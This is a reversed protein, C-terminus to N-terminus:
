WHSGPLNSLVNTRYQKSKHKPFSLQQWKISWRNYNGTKFTMWEVTQAPYKKGESKVLRDSYTKILGEYYKWYWDLTWKTTYTNQKPTSYWWESPTWWNLYKQAEPIFKKAMPENEEWLSSGYNYPKSYSKWSWKQKESSLNLWQKNIDDLVWRVYQNYREIDDWYLANLMWNKQIRDYFDMNAALVWMKASAERGRSMWSNEISNMIYDIANIRAPESKFYKSLMTLSNKIYRANVNWDKAQQYMIMDMYWLTSLYWTLDDDKYLDKFVPYANSVYETIAKYWSTKDALFMYPYYEELVQRQIVAMQEETVDKTSPYDKKTVLKLLEYERQNALYSLVIKSSGPRSAQAAAMIKMLGAKKRDDTSNLFKTLDEDTWWLWRMLEDTFVTEKLQELEGPYWVSFDTWSKRWKNPYDFATLEKYLRDVADNTYVWEDRWIDKVDDPNMIDYNNLIHVIWNTDMIHQLEKRKAQTFTFWQWTIANQLVNGLVPIYPLLRNKWWDGNEWNLIWDVTQLSYLRQSIQGSNSTKESNLLLKGLMDKDDTMFDLWYKNTWEVLQFRWLWNAINSFESDLVDYAFDINGTKGFAVVSDMMANLVKGERFFKSLIESITNLGAVTLWQWVKFDEHNTKVYEAYDEVWTLPATLIWYFFTAPISSLYDSTDIMYDSYTKANFEWWNSLRDMYYGLKASLLVNMILWKLEQNDYQLYDTFDNWKFKGNRKGVWNVADKISSFIEDTRNIVYWQLANFMYLRSFKHRSFLATASNTFFRSYWKETDALIKNILEDPVQKAEFARVFSDLDPYRWVLNKELSKALEMSKVSWQACLDFLSHTGWKMAVTVAEKLKWEPLPKIMLDLVKDFWTWGLDSNSNFMIENVRNIWDTLWLWWDARSKILRDFAPNNMIWRFGAKESWYRTVWLLASNALMMVWSIPFLIPWYKIFRWMSRLGMVLKNMTWTGLPDWVIDHVLNDIEKTKSPDIYKRAMTRLNSELNAWTARFYEVAAWKHNHWINKLIWEFWDNQRSLMLYQYQPNWWWEYFVKWIWNLADTVDQPLWNIVMNADWKFSKRDVSIAESNMKASKSKIANYIKDVDEDSYNKIVNQFNDVAARLDDWHYTIFNTRLWVIQSLDESKSVIDYNTFNLLRTNWIDDNRREIQTINLIEEWDDLEDKSVQVNKEKTETPVKVISSQEEIDEVLAKNEKDKSQKFVLKGNGNKEWDLQMRPTVPKNEEEVESMFIWKQRKKEEKVKNRYDEQVEKKLKKLKLWWEKDWPMKVKKTWNITNWLREQLAMTKSINKELDDLAERYEANESLDWLERAKSLRKLIWEKEQKLSNWQELVKDWKNKKEIEALAENVWEPEKYIDNVVKKYLENQEAITWKLETPKVEEYPTINRLQFMGPSTQTYWEENVNKQFRKIDLIWEYVDWNIDVLVKVDDMDHVPEYGMGMPHELNRMLEFRWDADSIYKGPSVIDVVDKGLDDVWYPIDWMRMIEDPSMDREHHVLYYEPQYWIIKATAEEWNVTVPAEFDMIKKIMPDYLLAEDKNFLYNDLKYYSTPTSYKLDANTKYSDSKCIDSMMNKINTQARWDKMNKKWERAAKEIIEKYLLDWANKYWAEKIISDLKNTWYKKIYAEADEWILKMYADKYKWDLVKSAWIYKNDSFNIWEIWLSKIPKWNEQWKYRPWKPYKNNETVWKRFTSREEWKTNTRMGKKIMTLAPIVKNYEEWPIDSRLVWFEDLIYRGFATNFLDKPAITQTVDKVWDEWEVTYGIKIKKSWKHNLADIYKGLFGYMNFETEWFIEDAFPTERWLQINIYINKIKWANTQAWIMNKNFWYLEALKQPNYGVREWNFTSIANFLYNHLSNTEQYKKYFEYEEKNEEAFKTKNYDYEEALKDKINNYYTINGEEELFDGAEDYKDKLYKLIDDKNNEKGYALMDIIWNYSTNLYKNASDKTEDIIFLNNYLLPQRWYLNDLYDPESEIISEVESRMRSEMNSEPSIQLSDVNWQSKAIDEDNARITIEWGSKAAAEDTTENSILKQSLREEDLEEWVNDSYDRSLDDVIWWEVQEKSQWETVVNSIEEDEFIENLKKGKVKRILDDTIDASTGKELEYEFDDIADAVKDRRWKHERISTDLADIKQKYEEDSIKWGNYEKFLEIKRDHEKILLENLNDMESELEDLSMINIDNYKQWEKVKTRELLEQKDGKSIIISKTGTDMWYNKGVYEPFLWWEFVVQDWQVTDHWFLQWLLDKAAFWVKTKDANGNIYDALAKNFEELPIVMSDKTFQIKHEVNVEVDEWNRKITKTVINWMDDTHTITNANVNGVEDATLWVGRVKELIKTIAEMYEPTWEEWLELVWRNNLRRLLSVFAETSDTWHWNRVLKDVAIQQIDEQLINNLARVEAENYKWISSLINAVLRNTCYESFTLPITKSAEIYWRKTEDWLLVKNIDIVANADIWEKLKMLIFLSREDWLKDAISDIADHINVVDNRVWFKDGFEWLFNTVEGRTSNSWFMQQLIDPNDFAFKQWYNGWKNLKWNTEFHYFPTSNFSFNWAEREEKIWNATDQFFKVVNNANTKNNKVSHNILYPVLEQLEITDARADHHWLEWWLEKAKIKNAANEIPEFAKVLEEQSHNAVWLPMLATAVLDTAISNNENIKLWAEKLRKFDYTINHWIFMAWEDSLQQLEKALEDNKTFKVTGNDFWYKKANELSWRTIKKPLKYPKSRPTVKKINGDKDIEVIRYAMQIIEPKAKMKKLDEELWSTETDMLVLKRWEFWSWKMNTPDEVYINNTWKKWLDQATKSTTYVWWFNIYSPRELQKLDEFVRNMGNQFADLSIKKNIWLENARELLQRVEYLQQAVREAWKPNWPVNLLNILNDLHEIDDKLQASFVNIKYGFSNDISKGFIEELRNKVKWKDLLDSWEIKKILEEVLEDSSMDYWNDILWKLWLIAKKYEDKIGAKNYLKLKTATEDFWDLDKQLHWKNIITKLMNDPDRLLQALQIDWLLSLNIAKDSDKLWQAISFELKGWENRLNELSNRIASQLKDLLFSNPLWNKAFVSRAIVNSLDDINDNSLKRADNIIAIWKNYKIGDKNLKKDINSINKVKSWAFADQIKNLLVTKDADSIWESTLWNLKKTLASISKQMDKNNTWVQNLLKIISDKYIWVWKWELMLKSIITKYLYDSNLHSLSTITQEDVILEGFTKVIAKVWEESMWIWRMWKAQNYLSNIVPIMEQEHGKYYKGTVLVDKIKNFLTADNVDKIDAEKLINKILWWVSQIEVEKFTAQNAFMQKFAEIDEIDLINKLRVKWWDEIFLKEFYTRFEKLYKNANFQKDTDLKQNYLHHKFSNYIDWFYLMKYANLDEKEFVNLWKSWLWQMRSYLQQIAWYQWTVWILNWEEDINLKLWNSSFVDKIIWQEAATKGKRGKLGIWQIKSVIHTIDFDKTIDWGTNKLKTLENAFLAIWNYLQYEDAWLTRSRLNRKIYDIVESQTYTAKGDEMVWFIDVYEWKNNRKFKGIFEDEKIFNEPKGELLELITWNYIENIWERTLKDWSEAIKEIWIDRLTADWKALWLVLDDVWNVQTVRKVALRVDRESLRWDSLANRITASISKAWAFIYDSLQRVTTAMKIDKEWKEKLITWLDTNNAAKTWKELEYSLIIDDLKWINWQMRQIYENTSQQLKEYKAVVDPDAKRLEDLNFQNKLWAKNAKSWETIEMGRLLVLQQTLMWLNDDTLNKAIDLAEKSINNNLIDDVTLSKNLYRAPQHVMAMAWDIMTNFLLNLNEEEWTIPHWVLTQFASDLIQDYLMDSAMRTWRRFWVRELNAAKTVDLAKDLKKLISWPLKHTVYMELAVPWLQPLSDLLWNGVWKAWGLAKTLKDADEEFVYLNALEETVDYRGTLAQKGEETWYSLHQLGWTLYNKAWLLMSNLNHFVDGASAYEDADNFNREITYKFLKNTMDRELSVIDNALEKNVANNITEKYAEWYTKETIVKKAWEETVKIINDEYEKSTKIWEDLIREDRTDNYANMVNEFAMSYQDEIQKIWKGIADIQYRNTAQKIIPSLKSEFRNNFVNKWEEKAQNFEYDKGSKQYDQYANYRAEDIVWESVMKQYYSSAEDESQSETMAKSYENFKKFDNIWWDENKNTVKTRWYEILEWLDWFLWKTGERIDEVIWYKTRDKKDAVDKIKKIAEERTPTKEDFWFLSTYKNQRKEQQQFQQQQAQQGWQLIKKTLEDSIKAM